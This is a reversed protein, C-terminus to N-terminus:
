REALQKTLVIEDHIPIDREGLLPIAPKAQRARDVAGVRLEALRYGRKQYFGLADLNDNTTVLRLQPVRALTAREEIADLLATGIGRGSVTANLSVIEWAGDRPFWTIAGVRTGIQWALLSTPLLEDLTVTLDALVMTQGSWIDDWLEALWARDDASEVPTITVPLVNTM